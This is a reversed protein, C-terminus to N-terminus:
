ITDHDLTKEIEALTENLVRGIIEASIQLGDEWLPTEALIERIAELKQEPTM